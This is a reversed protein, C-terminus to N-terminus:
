CHNSIFAILTCASSFCRAWICSGQKNCTHSATGRLLGKLAHRAHDYNNILQQQSQRVLLGKGQQNAIEESIAVHRQMLAKGMRQREHSREYRPAVCDELVHWVYAQKSKHLCCLLVQLLVEHWCATLLCSECSLLHASTISAPLAQIIPPRSQTPTRWLKYM